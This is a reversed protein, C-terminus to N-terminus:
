AAAGGSPIKAAIAVPQPTLRSSRCRCHQPPLQNYAARPEDDRRPDHGLTTERACLGRSSRARGPAVAHPIQTGVVSTVSMFNLDRAAHHAPLQRAKVPDEANGYLQCMMIRLPYGRFRAAAQERYCSFIWDTPRLAYTPGILTAEEGWATLYVGIRGQRQFRLLHEDLMSSELMRRLDAGPIDPELEPRCLQGDPGLIRFLELKV